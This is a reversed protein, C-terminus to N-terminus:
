TSRNNKKKFTYICSFEFGKNGYQKMYSTNIDYSIRFLNNRFKIGAHLVISNQRRWAFGLITQYDTNKIKNFSLLGLNLENAKAQSMYLVQPLIRMEDNINVYCGAQINFRIPTTSFSSTFSEDPQNVHYLSAGAFPSFNKNEDIFRYYIGMNVDLHSYSEKAFNEGTPLNIDFGDASSASYQNDYSFNAANLSKHLIGMQIGISLNHKDYGSPDKHIIRYAGSLMFNFTNFSGNLSKNDIIYEGFSFKKNIPIDFGATVTSFQDSFSKNAQTRYNANIRFDWDENLRMGTLAPNIYLPNADYQSLHFDQAVSQLAILAFSITFIYLRTKM